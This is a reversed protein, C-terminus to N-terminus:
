ESPRGGIAAWYGASPPHEECLQGNKPRHIMRRTRCRSHKAPSFCGMRKNGIVTKVGRCDATPLRIDSRKTKQDDGSTERLSNVADPFAGGKPGRFRMKVYAAERNLKISRRTVQAGGQLRQQLEEQEKLLWGCGEHNHATAM